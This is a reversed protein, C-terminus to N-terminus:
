RPKSAVAPSQLHRATHPWWGRWGHNRRRLFRDSPGYGAASADGLRRGSHGAFRRCAARQVGPRSISRSFDLVGVRSIASISRASISARSISSVWRFDRARSSISSVWRFDCRFYSLFDLVGVPFRAGLLLFDLVGVSRFRSRFRPCGGSIFFDLVGVPFRSRSFDLVGVSFQPCGVLFRFDCPSPLRPCGSPQRRALPRGPSNGDRVTGWFQLFCDWPQRVQGTATVAPPFDLVGM